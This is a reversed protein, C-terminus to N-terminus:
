GEKQLRILEAETQRLELEVQQQQAVLAVDSSYDPDRSAFEHAAAMACLQPYREFPPLKLIEALNLTM